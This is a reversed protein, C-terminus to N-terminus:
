PSPRWPHGEPAPGANCLPHTSCCTTTSRGRTAPCTSRHLMLLCLDFPSRYGHSIGIPRIRERWAASLGQQGNEGQMSMDGRYLQTQDISLLLHHLHPISSLLLSCEIGRRVDAHDIVKCEGEEEEEEEEEEDGDFDEEYDQLNM